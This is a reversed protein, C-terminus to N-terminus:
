MLVIVTTIKRYDRLYRINKELVVKHIKIGRTDEFYPPFVAEIKM